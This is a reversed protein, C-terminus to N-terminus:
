KSQAIARKTGQLLMSSLQAINHELAPQVFPTYGRAVVMGRKPPLTGQKKFKSKRSKQKVISIPMYHPLGKGTEQQAAWPSTAELVWSNKGKGKVTRIQRALEGTDRPARLKASKEVKKLFGRSDKNIEKQLNKPLNRFLNEVKRMGTVKLSIAM